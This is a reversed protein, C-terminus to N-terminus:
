KRWRCRDAPAALFAQHGVANRVGEVVEDYSSRTFLPV